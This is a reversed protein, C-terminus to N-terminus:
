DKIYNYNYISKVKQSKSATSSKRSKSIVGNVVTELTAGTQKVEKCNSNYQQTM